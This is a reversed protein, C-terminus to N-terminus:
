FNNFIFSTPRIEEPAPFIKLSVKTIIGLTGESGVFLLHPFNRQEIVGKLREIINKRGCIKDLSNPQYKIRWIPVNSQNLYNNM